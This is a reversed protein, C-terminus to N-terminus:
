FILNLFFEKLEKNFFIKPFYKFSYLSQGNQDLDRALSGM